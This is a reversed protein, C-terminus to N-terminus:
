NGARYQALDAMINRSIELVRDSPTYEKQGFVKRHFREVNSELTMPLDYWIAGSGHDLQYGGLNYPWTKSGVFKYKLYKEMLKWMEDPSMSTQISPLVADATKVLNHLGMGKAKSIIKKITKRMRDARAPDGGSEGKRIRCYTVAELGNLKYKKAKNFQKYKGKVTKATMKNVRNMESLENAKIKVKIGGIEDIVKAVSVWNVRMYADINLDLNRNLARITNVPGGYAHAHTVKDLTHYGEEELDLYSDRAVSTLNVENTKKNITVIVIADSRCENDKEGKRTDVGLLVINKYGKLNEAAEPDIDLDEKSIDIYDFKKLHETVVKETKAYLSVAAYAVGLIVMILVIVTIKLGWHKSEAEHKAM